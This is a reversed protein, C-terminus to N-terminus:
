RVEPGGRRTDPVFRDRYPMKVQMLSASDLVANEAIVKNASLLFATLSYVEDNTLSGPATHPMARRVYDFVSTAHSWYNGITKPLKYDKAVRFDEGASDRGILPPYAPAMGEGKPGHCMQCKQQFLTAGAAVTGRGPPLGHGDPAADIDVAAIEAATPTRGLGRSGGDAAGAAAGGGGTGCAAVSAAVIVMWPARM